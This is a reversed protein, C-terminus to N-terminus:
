LRVSKERTWRFLHNKTKTTQKKTHNKQTLKQYNNPNDLQKYAEEIYLKRDWVVVTGGKDAPKIVIDDRKQLNILAASEDSTLNSKKSPVLKLNRIESLCKNIYCEVEAYTGDPPERHM